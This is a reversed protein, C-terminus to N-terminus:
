GGEEPLEPTEPVDEREAPVDVLTGSPTLIQGDPLVLYDGEPGSVVTVGDPRRPLRGSPGFVEGDPSVTTMGDPFVVSGDQALFLGDGLDFLADEPLEPIFVEPGPDFETHNIEIDGLSIEADVIVEPDGEPGVTITGEPQVQGDIRVDGDHVTPHIEVTVDDDVDIDIQGIGVRLDSRTPDGRPADAVNLRATGATRTSNVPGQTGLDIWIDEDGLSPSDVGARAAHGAVFGVAAFLLGPVVLWRGRGRWAGVVLGAGCVAAAAGLWQEPHLRGGNLQDILAGVAAVVLAVGLTSQGLVSPERDRPPAAVPAPDAPGVRDDTLAHDIVPGAPIGRPAWLALAVGALLAALGWSSDVWPGDIDELLFVSGILVAVGLVRLTAWGPRRGVILLLWLGLYVLLGFGDLFVTLGVFALRVWLPDIGFRVGIELAVGGVVPHGAAPRHPSVAPPTPPPLEPRPDDASGDLTQVGDL